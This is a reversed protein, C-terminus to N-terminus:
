WDHCRLVYAYPVSVIEYIKSKQRRKKREDTEHPWAVRDVFMSGRGECGALLLDHCADM